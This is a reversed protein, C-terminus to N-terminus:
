RKRSWATVSDILDRVLCVAVALWIPAVICAVLVLMWAPVTAGGHPVLYAIM